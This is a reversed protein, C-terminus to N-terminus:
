FVCVDYYEPERGLMKKSIDTLADRFPKKARNGISKIFEILQNYSVNENELYSSLPSIKDSNKADKVIQHERYVRKISSFRSEVIPSIYKTKAIFEDFM